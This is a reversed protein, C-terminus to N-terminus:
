RALRACACVNYDSYYLAAYSSHRISKYEMMMMKLLQKLYEISQSKNKLFYVKRYKSYDDKILLFFKAGGLSTEEIPGGIDIHIVEGPKTARHTSLPFPFKHQKGKLCPLCTEEKSNKFKINQKMLISKVQNIDQHALKTHWERLNSMVKGVMACADPKKFLMTYMKGHRKAIAYVSNNKIFQCETATSELKYGKDLAASMSFLNVKISPVYLVNSILTKIWQQGDYAELDIDGYGLAKIITGDGIVVDKPVLLKKYNIFNDVTSCMHESAGSDLFWENNISKSALGCASM